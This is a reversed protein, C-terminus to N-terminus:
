EVFIIKDFEIKDVSIVNKRMSEVHKRYEEITLRKMIPETTTSVPILQYSFNCWGWTIEDTIIIFPFKRRDANENLIESLYFHRKKHIDVIVSGIEKVLLIPTPLPQDPYKTGDDYEFHVIMNKRSFNQFGTLFDLVEERSSINLDSEPSDKKLMFEGRANILVEIITTNKVDKSILSDLVEIRYPGITDVQDVLIIDTGKCLNKVVQRNNENSPNNPYATLLFSFLSLILTIKKM